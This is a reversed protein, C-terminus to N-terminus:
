ASIDKAFRVAHVVSVKSDLAVGAFFEIDSEESSEEPEEPMESTRYVEHSKSKKCVSLTTEVVVDPVNRDGLLVNIKRYCTHAEVSYLDRRLNTLHNKRCMGIMKEMEHPNEVRNKEEASKTFPM